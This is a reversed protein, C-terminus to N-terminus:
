ESIIGYIHNELMLYYTKDKINIEEVMANNVLVKTGIYHKSVKECDKAVALVGYIEYRSKVISYDEPVLITSKKEEEEKKIPMLLLHRNLPEFSM